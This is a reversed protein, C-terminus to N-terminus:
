ESFMALGSQARYDSWSDAVMVANIHLVVFLLGMVLSWSIARTLPTSRNKNRRTM